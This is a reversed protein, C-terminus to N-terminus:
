LNINVEKVVQLARHIVVKVQGYIRVRGIVLLLNVQPQVGAIDQRLHSEQQQHIIIDM